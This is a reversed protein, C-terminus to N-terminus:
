IDTNYKEVEITQNQTVTYSLNKDIDSINWNEDIYDRVNPTIDCFVQLEKGSEFYINLDYFKSIEVNVILDNELSKIGKTLEGNPFDNSENWGTIINDDQILRWASYVMLTFDNAGIGLLFISGSPEGAIAETVTQNILKKVIDKIENM